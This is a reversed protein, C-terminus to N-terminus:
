KKGYVRILEAAADDITLVDTSVSGGGAAVLEMFEAAPPASLGMSRLQARHSFVEAAPGDFAVEGKDMVIVRDAMEAVDDMNHSILIITMNREKRITRILDLISDKGVPDLGAAPEDLVLVEPQMALIGAIAVRRKQGGSLSFPSKDGQTKPDIGVLELAKEARKVCEEESVGLNAPGFCVDKIVTEEFLQYEPYQFVLGIRHRLLKAEPSKDNIDRGDALVSGKTPKLLGNFHQVLTSKGSGTHGIICVMEGQGITLCVDKLAYTEYPLGENYIHSLNKVEILM